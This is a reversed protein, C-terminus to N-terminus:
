GRGLLEDLKNRETQLERALKIEKENAKIKFAKYEEDIEEYLETRHKAEHKYKGITLLVVILAVALGAVLIWLVTGISSKTTSVISEAPGQTNHNIASKLGSITQTQATLKIQLNKLENRQANMTDSVSKWLAAVFPQQTHFIKTMLYQYQGNLSKDNLRDSDVRNLGASDNNASQPTKRYRFTVPKTQPPTVPAAAATVTTTTVPNIAATTVPEAKKEPEIIKEAEVKKATDQANAPSAIWLCICLLFFLYGPSALRKIM